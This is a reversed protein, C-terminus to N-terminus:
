LSHPFYKFDNVSSSQLHNATQKASLKKHFLMSMRTLWFQLLLVIFALWSLSANLGAVPTVLIGHGCHELVNCTWIPSTM